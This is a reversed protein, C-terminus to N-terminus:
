KIIHINERQLFFSDQKFFFFFIKSSSQLPSPAHFYKTEEKRAPSLAWVDPSSSLPMKCSVSGTTGATRSSLLVSFPYKHKYFHYIPIFWFQWEKSVCAHTLTEAKKAQCVWASLKGVQNRWLRRQESVDEREQCCGALWFLYWVLSHSSFVLFPPQFPWHPSSLLFYLFKLLHQLVSLDPVAWQGLLALELYPSLRSWSLSPKYKEKGKESFIYSETTKQWLNIQIRWLVGASTHQNHPFQWCTSARRSKLWFLMSLQRVCHPKVLRKEARKSCSNQGGYWLM